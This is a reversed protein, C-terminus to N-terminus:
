ESRIRGNMRYSKEWLMKQSKHTDKDENLFLKLILMKKSKHFNSIVQPTNINLLATKRNVHYVQFLIKECTVM